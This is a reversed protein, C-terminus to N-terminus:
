ERSKLKTLIFFVRSDDNEEPPFCYLGERWLRKMLLKRVTGDDESPPLSPFIEEDVFCNLISMEMITQGKSDCEKLRDLLVALHRVVWRDISERYEEKM